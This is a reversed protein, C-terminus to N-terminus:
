KIRYDGPRPCKLCRMHRGIRSVIKLLSISVAFLYHRKLNALRKVLFMVQKNITENGHAFGGEAPGAIGPIFALCVECSTPVAMGNLGLACCRHVIPAILWGTQAWRVSKAQLPDSWIAVSSM